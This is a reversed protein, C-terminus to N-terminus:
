DFIFGVGSVLARCLSASDGGRVGVGGTAVSVFWMLLYVHVQAYAGISVTHCRSQLKPHFGNRVQFFRTSRETRRCVFVNLQVVVM